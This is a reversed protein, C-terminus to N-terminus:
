LRASVSVAREDGIYGFIKSSSLIQNVKVCAKVCKDKYKYPNNSTMSESSLVLGCTSSLKSRTYGQKQVEPALVPDLGVAKWGKADNLNKIGANIWNYGEPIGAKVWKKVDDINTVGANVWNYGKRLDAQVWIHVEIPTLSTKRWSKYDEESWTFDKRKLEKWEKNKDVLSGMRKEAQKLTVGQKTWKNIVKENAGANYWEVAKTSSTVGFTTYVIMQEKSFGVKFWKGAVEPNNIGMKLCDKADMGCESSVKKWMKAASASTVGADLYGFIRDKELGSDLWKKAESPKIGRKSWDKVTYRNIGVKM